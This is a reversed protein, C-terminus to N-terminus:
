HAAVSPFPTRLPGYMRLIEAGAASERANQEKFQHFLIFSKRELLMCVNLEVQAKGAPM